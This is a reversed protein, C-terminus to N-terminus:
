FKNSSKNKRRTKVKMPVNFWCFESKERESFCKISWFSKSATDYTLSDIRMRPTAQLYKLCIRSSAIASSSIRFRSKRRCQLFWRYTSKSPFGKRCSWRCLTEFNRLISSRRLLKWFMWCFTLQCLSIRLWRSQPKSRRKHNKSCSTEVWRQRKKPM